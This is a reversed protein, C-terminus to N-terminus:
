RSVRTVIIRRPIERYRTPLSASNMRGTSLPSPLNFGVPVGEVTWPVLEFVTTGDQHFRGAAAHTVAGYDASQTFSRYFGTDDVPRYLITRAVNPHRAILAPGPTFLIQAIERVFDLGIEFWFSNTDTSRVGASGDPSVADVLTWGSQGAATFSYAHREPHYNPSFDVNSFTMRSSSNQRSGNSVKRLPWYTCGKAPADGFNESASLGIRYWVDIQYTDTPTVRIFFENSGPTVPNVSGPVGNVVHRFAIPQTTVPYSDTNGDIEWPALNPAIAQLSRELYSPPNGLNLLESDWLCNTPLPFQTIKAVGNQFRAHWNRPLLRDRIGLGDGGLQGSKFFPHFGGATLDNWHDFEGGDASPSEISFRLPQLVNYVSVDRKSSTTFHHYLCTRNFDAAPTGTVGFSWSADSLGIDDAIPEPYVYRQIFGSLPSAAAQDCCPDSPNGFSICM